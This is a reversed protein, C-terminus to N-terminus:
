SGRYGFYYQYDLYEKRLGSSMNRGVAGDAGVVGAVGVVSRGRIGISDRSDRGTSTGIKEM